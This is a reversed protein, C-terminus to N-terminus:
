TSLQPTQQGPQALQSLAGTQTPDFNALGSTDFPKMTPANAFQPAYKDFEQIDAAKANRDQLTWARQQEALWIQRQTDLNTTDISAQYKSQNAQDQANSSMAGQALGVAISGLIVWGGQRKKSQFGRGKM